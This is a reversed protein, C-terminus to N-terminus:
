WASWGGDVYLVSGTVYRSAESALFVVAGGLDEAPDGLRGVLTREAMRDLRGPDDALSGTMTTPYFVGPALCNVTVGGASWEAALGRTLNAVGGKSAYYASEPMSGAIAAYQSAVNIVRGYRHRLMTPALGRSVLWTGTLNVQIVRNWEEVSTEVAPKRLMVGAANLLIDVRPWVGLLLELQGDVQVEDSVDALLVESRRGEGRIAEATREARDAGAPQELVAVDAGARALAVAAWHGLGGEGAGTVLATRGSLERAVAPPTM